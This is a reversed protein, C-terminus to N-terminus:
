YFGETVLANGTPAATWMGWLEGRWGGIDSEFQAFMNRPLVFTGVQGVWNVTNDLGVILDANTSTNCVTYQVRGPRFKALQTAVASAAITRQEKRSWGVVRKATGVEEVPTAVLEVWIDSLAGLLECKVTLLRAEVIDVGLSDGDGFPALIAPGNVDFVDVTVNADPDLGRTVTVRVTGDGRYTNDWPLQPQSRSNNLDFAFRLQLDINRTRGIDGTDVITAVNNANSPINTVAGNPNRLLAVGGWRHARSGHHKGPPLQDGANAEFDALGGDPTFYRPDLERYPRRPMDDCGLSFILTALTAWERIRM